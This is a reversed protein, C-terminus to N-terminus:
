HTITIGKFLFPSLFPNILVAPGARRPWSLALSMKINILICTLKIKIKKTAQFCNDCAKFRKLAPLHRLQKRVRHYRDQFSPVSRCAPLKETRRNQDRVHSGNAAMTASPNVELDRQSSLAGLCSQEMGGETKCINPTPLGGGGFGEWVGQVGRPRRIIVPPSGGLSMLFMM